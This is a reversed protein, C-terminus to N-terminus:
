RGYPRPPKCHKLWASDVALATLPSVHKAGEPREVRSPRTAANRHDLEAGVVRVRDKIGSVSIADGIPLIENLLKATAGFSLHAAWKVQLYELEATVRFPIAAALPSYSGAEGDCACRRLRPSFLAIKGFVTRCLITHSGKKSLARGCAKCREVRAVAVEAQAEVVVRQAAHLLKRGEHLDLGLKSLDSEPREIEVLRVAPNSSGEVRAEIIVRM